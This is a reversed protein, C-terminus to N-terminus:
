SKDFHKILQNQVDARIKLGNLIDDYTLIKLDNENSKKLNRWQSLSIDPKRGIVLRYEPEYYEIGQTAFKRKVSDQTLLRKYNQIQQIGVHVANVFVPIDRETKTLKIPKKLEMLEWDQTVANRLFIDLRRNKNNIDLEPFKLWIQTEIRDYEWFIEEFYKKLFAELKAESSNSAILQEFEKIIDNKNRFQFIPECPSLSKKLVGNTLYKESIFENISIDENFSIVIESKYKEIFQFFVQETTKKELEFFSDITGITTQADLGVIDILKEFYPIIIDQYINENLESYNSVFSINPMYYMGDTPYFWASYRKEVTRKYKKLYQFLQYDNIKVTNTEKFLELPYFFPLVLNYIQRDIVIKDNTTYKTKYSEFINNGIKPLYYTKVTESDLVTDKFCWLDYIFKSFAPKNLSGVINKLLSNEM